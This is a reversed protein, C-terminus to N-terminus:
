VTKDFNEGNGDKSHPAEAIEIPNHKKAIGYEVGRKVTGRALINLAPKLSMGRTAIATLIVAAGTTLFGRTSESIFSM